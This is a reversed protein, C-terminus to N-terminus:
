PQRQGRPAECLLGMAATTRLPEMGSIRPRGKGRYQQQFCVKETHPNSKYCWHHLMLARADPMSGINTALSPMRLSSQLHGTPDAPLIRSLQLSSVACQDANPSFIVSHFSSATGAPHSPANKLSFCLVFNRFFHRVPAPPTTPAFRRMRRAIARPWSRRCGSFRPISTAGFSVHGRKSPPMEM